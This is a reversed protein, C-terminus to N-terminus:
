AIYVRSGRGSRGNRTWKPLRIRTAPVPTISYVLLVHLTHWTSKSFTGFLSHRQAGELNPDNCPLRAAASSPAEWLRTGGPYSCYRLDQSAM